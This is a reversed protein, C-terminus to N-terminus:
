NYKKILWLYSNPTGIKISVNDKEFYFFPLRIFWHFYLWRKNPQILFRWNAFKVRRNFMQIKDHNIIVIKRKLLEIATHSEHVFKKM